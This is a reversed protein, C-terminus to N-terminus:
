HLDTSPLFIELHTTSYSQLILVSKTYNNTIKGLKHKKARSGLPNCVEVGDYYLIIELSPYDFHSSFLPHSKFMLGDCYDSLLEDQRQHGKFGIYYSISSIYFLYYNNRVEELIFKDSLLQKLSAILPIVYVSDWM